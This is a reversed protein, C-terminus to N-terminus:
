LQVQRSQVNAASFPRFLVYRLLTHHSTNNHSIKIISCDHLQIVYFFM